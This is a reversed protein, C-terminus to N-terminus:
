LPIFLKKLFQVVKVNISVIILHGFKETEYDKAKLLGFGFVAGEAELESYAKLKKILKM